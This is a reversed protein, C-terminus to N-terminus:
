PQKCNTKKQEGSEEQTSATDDMMDVLWQTEEEITYMVETDFDIAYSMEPEQM